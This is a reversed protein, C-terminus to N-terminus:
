PDLPGAFLGFAAGQPDAIVAIRSEDSVPVNMPEVLATGGLEGAKAASEDCNDVAFYALWNAPVNAEMETQPRIGGNSKDGVRIVTYAGGDLVEPTWRFLSKYFDTAKAADKTGLENWCLAGPANVLGAGIHNKPTWMMFVAGEPDAAVAMRGADLVDFPPLIVNGGLESVKAASAELDDVTVYSNWHPPIGQSREEDRQEAVAAVDTGNLRCMTYTGGDPIPNDEFTWGFLGGYFSKAAGTDTTALDVWSFTGPAYSTREGM